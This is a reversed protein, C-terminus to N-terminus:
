IVKQANQFFIVNLVDSAAVWAPNMLPTNGFPDRFEIEAESLVGRNVADDLAINLEHQKDNMIRYIALLLM